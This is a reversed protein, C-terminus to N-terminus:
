RSHGSVIGERRLRSGVILSVGPGGHWAAFARPTVRICLAPLPLINETGLGGGITLLRRTNNPAAANASSPPVTAAHPRRRWWRFDILQGGVRGHRAGVALEGCVGRCCCEAAVACASVATAESRDACAWASDSSSTRITPLFAGVVVVVM